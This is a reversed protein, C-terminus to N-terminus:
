RERGRGQSAPRTSRGDTRPTGSAQASHAQVAAAAPARPRTANAAASVPLPTILAHRIMGVSEAVTTTVSAGTAALATRLNGTAGLTTFLAHAAQTVGLLLREPAQFTVASALEILRVAAAEVTNRVSQPAPGPTQKLASLLNARATRIAQPLDGPATAATAGIRILEIVAAELSHQARPLAANLDNTIIGTLAADAAGSVTADTLAIAQLLPQGSQLERVFTAPIAAFSILPRTAFDVIFPCILSCDTGQNTLFQRLLEGAPPTTAASLRVGVVVSPPESPLVLPTIALAATASLAIGTSVTSRVLHHMGGEVIRTATSNSSHALFTFVQVLRGEKGHKM